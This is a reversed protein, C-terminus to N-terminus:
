HSEGACRNITHQKHALDPFHFATRSRNRRPPHASRGPARSIVVGTAPFPLVAGATKMRRAAQHSVLLPQVEAICRAGGVFKVFLLRNSNRTANRPIDTKRILVQSSLAKRACSDSIGIAIPSIARDRVRCSTARRATSQRIPRASDAPDFVHRKRRSISCTRRGICRVASRRRASAACPTRM